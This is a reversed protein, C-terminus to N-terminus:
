VPWSRAGLRLPTIQIPIPAFAALGIPRGFVMKVRNGRCGIREGKAIDLHISRHIRLPSNSVGFCFRDVGNLAKGPIREPKRSQQVAKAKELKRSLPQTAMRSKGAGFKGGRDRSSSASDASRGRRFDPSCTKGASPMAASLGLSTRTSDLPAMFPANGAPNSLPQLSDPVRGSNSTTVPILVPARM